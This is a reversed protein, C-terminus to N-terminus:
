GDEARHRAAFALEALQELVRHSEQFRRTKLDLEPDM